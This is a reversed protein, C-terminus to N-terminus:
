LHPRECVIRGAPIARHFEDALELLARDVERRRSLDDSADVRVDALLSYGNTHARRQAAVVHDRARV